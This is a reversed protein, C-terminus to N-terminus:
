KDEAKVKEEENKLVDDIGKKINYIRSLMLDTFKGLSSFLSKDDENEQEFVYLIDKMEVDEYLIDRGRKNKLFIQM